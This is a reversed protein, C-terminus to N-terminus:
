AKRAGGMLHEGMQQRRVTSDRDFPHVRCMNISFSDSHNRSRKAPQPSPAAACAARDARAIFATAMAPM